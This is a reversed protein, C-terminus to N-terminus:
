TAPEDSGEAVTDTATARRWAEDCAADWKARDPVRGCMGAAVFRAARAAYDLAMLVTATAAWEEPVGVAVMANATREADIAVINGFQRMLARAVPDPTYTETDDTQDTM